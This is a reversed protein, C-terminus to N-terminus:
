RDRRRYASSTFTRDLRWLALSRDVRTVATRGAEASAEAELRHAHRRRIIGAYAGSAGLLGSFSLAQALILQSPEM